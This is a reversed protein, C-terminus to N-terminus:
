KSKANAKDLMFQVVAKIEADTCEVCAGRPPMLGAGKITNLVLQDMGRVQILKDWAAKDGTKPAGAIGPDHCNSCFNVYLKEPTREEAGDDDDAPAKPTDKGPGDGKQQPPAADARHQLAPAGLLFAASVAAVFATLAINKM